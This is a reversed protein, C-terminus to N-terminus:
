NEELEIYYLIKNNMISKIAYWTGEFKSLISYYNEKGIKGVPFFSTKDVSLAYTDDKNNTPEFYLRNGIYIVRFFAFDLFYLIRFNINIGSDLQSGQTTKTITITDIRDITYKQRNIGSKLIHPKLDDYTLELM